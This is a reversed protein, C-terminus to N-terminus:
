PSGSINLALDVICATVGSGCSNLTKKTLNIGKATLIDRLESTRKLCGAEKDVLEAWPVNVSGTICGKSFGAAQRADTIQWDNDQGDRSIGSAIRHVRKIDTVACDPSDVHYGYDNDTALGEGDSYPASVV